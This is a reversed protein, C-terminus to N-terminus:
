NQHQNFPIKYYQTYNLYFIWKSHKGMQMRLEGLSHSRNTLFRSTLTHIHFLEWAERRSALQERGTGVSSSSRSRTLTSSVCWALTRSLRQGPLIWNSYTPATEGLKMSFCTTQFIKSSHWSPWVPVMWQLCPNAPIIPYRIHPHSMM